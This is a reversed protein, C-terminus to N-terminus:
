WNPDSLLEKLREERSKPVDSRPSAAVANTLTKGANAQGALAESASQQVVAPKSAETLNKSTENAQASVGLAARWKAAQAELHSEVAQAAIEVTEEFSKGPLEGTRRYFDEIYKVVTEEEGLEKILKRSATLEKIKSLAENRARAEREAKLERLENRIEDLEPNDTKEASDEKVERPKAGPTNDLVGHAVDAYTFGGANLFEMVNKNAIARQMATVQGPAFTKLGALYPKAEEMEKRFAAKEQALREFSAKITDSPAKVEPKEEVKPAETKAEAPPLSNEKSEVKPTEASPQATLEAVASAMRETSTKVPTTM